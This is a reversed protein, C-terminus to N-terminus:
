DGHLLRSTIRMYILAFGALVLFLMVGLASAGGFDANQFAYNYILLLVSM